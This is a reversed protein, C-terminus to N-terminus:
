RTRLCWFLRGPTASQGWADEVDAPTQIKIHEISVGLTKATREITKVTPGHVANGQNRVVAVRSLRPVTEKLLQLRKAGLEPLFFAAGTLNGGPRALNTVLGAAVPDGTVTMVIPITKTAQTAARTPPTGETFRLAVPWSRM